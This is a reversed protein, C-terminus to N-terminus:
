SSELDSVVDYVRHALSRILDVESQVVQRHSGIKPFVEPGASLFFELDGPVDGNAVFDDYIQCYEGIRHRLDSPAPSRSRFSLQSYVGDRFASIVERLAMSCMLARTAHPHFSWLKPDRSSAGGYYARFLEAASPVLSLVQMAEDFLSDLPPWRRSAGTGSLRSFASALGAEVASAIGGPSLVEMALDDLISNVRHNQRLLQDVRSTLEVLSADATKRQLRSVVGQLAADLDDTFSRLNHVLVRDFAASLSSALQESLYGNVVLVSVPRGRTDKPKNISRSIALLRDADASQLVSQALVIACGSEGLPLWYDIKRRRKSSDLPVDADFQWGNRDLVRVVDSRVDEPRVIEFQERAVERVVPRTVDTGAAAASQYAYFCLRILRRANGGSIDALYQAVDPSFPKLSRVGTVQELSDEIYRIADERTLRTPQIVVPVRQRADDPLVELFEPLGCLILLTGTKGVVELLRKFAAFVREDSESGSAPGLVKEMEDFVLLFRHGQGGYLLAVVGIAQLAAAESAIRGSVGREVLAPDPPSGCLWEWVAPEFEPRLFLALATGFSSDETVVSLRAGLQDQLHAEMLGLNRVVALPDVHRTRLEQAVPSTLASESLEDAVVDSFYESVRLLLEARSLRPVFRELYLQLFDDGPADLYLSHVNSIAAGRHLLRLALHTKGTGYEGVIAIVGGSHGSDSLSGARVYEDLLGQARRVADTEITPAAAAEGHSYRAVASSPFPNPYDPPM